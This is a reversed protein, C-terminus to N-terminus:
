FAYEMADVLLDTRNTSHLYRMVASTSSDGMWAKIEPLNANAKALYTGAFHRLSHPTYGSDQLGCRKLAPNWSNMFVDHRLHGGTASPFVLTEKDCAISDLLEDIKETLSMSVPVKRISARSKPKDIVHETGVLTVAREVIIEYTYIVSGDPQPREAKNFDKRRLETIEGFRFGGYAALAVLMTYRPNIKSAILAVEEPSPTTV